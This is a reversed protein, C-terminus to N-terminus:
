GWVTAEIWDVFSSVRTYFSPLRTNCSLGFSTIGHVYYVGDIKVQLASGSDGSCLQFYFKFTSSIQIFKTMLGQCTDVHKLRNNACVINDTIGKPLGDISHNRNPVNKTLEEEFEKRCYTISTEQVVGKLLWLSRKKGAIFRM